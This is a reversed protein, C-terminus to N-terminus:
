SHNIAQVLLSEKPKGPVAAPGTDGGKLAAGRTRLDLEGKLKKPNDGHCKMCNAKLLPQVSDDFFKVQEATFPTKSDAASVVSSSLALLIIAIPIRM